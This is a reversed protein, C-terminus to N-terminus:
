IMDTLPLPHQPVVKGDGRGTLPVDGMYNMQKETVPDVLVVSVLIQDLNEYCNFELDFDMEQVQDPYRVPSGDSEWKKFVIEDDAGWSNMAPAWVEVVDGHPYEPSYGVIDTRDVTVTSRSADIVVDLTGYEDEYGVPSLTGSFIGDKGIRAESAVTDDVSPLTACQRTNRAEWPEPDKLDAGAEQLTARVDALVTDQRMEHVIPSSNTVAFGGGLLIAGLAILAVYRPDQSHSM